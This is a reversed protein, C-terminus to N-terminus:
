RRLQSQPTELQPIEGLFQEYNRDLSGYRKEKPNWRVGITQVYGGVPKELPTFYMQLGKQADQEYQIRWASVPSLPIGGLYGNPNKLHEDGRFIEKWAGGENELVVVRTVLIGPVTGKPTVKLRNVALVQQQGTKALDGYALVETEGGLAAEAASQVDAPIAPAAPAAPTAESKAPAPSSGGCGVFALAALLSTTIIAIKRM